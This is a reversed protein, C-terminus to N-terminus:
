LMMKKGRGLFSIAAVALIAAIAIFMQLPPEPIGMSGGGSVVKYLILSVNEDEGADLFVMADTGSYGRMSCSIKYSGRPLTFSRSGNVYAYYTNSKGLLNIASVTVLGEAPSGDGYFLNVKLNGLAQVYAGVDLMYSFLMQKDFVIKSGVPLYGREVVTGNWPSWVSIESSSSAFMFYKTLCASEVMPFSTNWLMEGSPSVAYVNRMDSLVVVKRPEEPSPFITYNLITWDWVEGYALFKGNKRWVVGGGADWFETSDSSSLILGYGEASALASVNYGVSRSWFMKGFVDYCAIVTSNLAVYLLRDRESYAAAYATGNFKWLVRGSGDVVGAGTVISSLPSIFTYVNMDGELDRWELTWLLKGSSDLAYLRRFTGAYLVGNGYVLTYVPDPSKFVWKLTGDYGICYVGSGNGFVLGYGTSLLPSLISSRISWSLKLSPIMAYGESSYFTQDYGGGWSPWMSFCQQPLTLLIILLFAVAATRLGM